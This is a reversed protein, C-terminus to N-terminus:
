MQFGNNINVYIDIIEALDPEESKGFFDANKHV